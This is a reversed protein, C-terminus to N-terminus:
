KCKQQLFYHKPHFMTIGVVTVFQVHLLWCPIGQWNKVCLQLYLSPDIILLDSKFNCFMYRVPMWCWAMHLCISFGTLKYGTTFLVILLVLDYRHLFPWCWFGCCSFCFVLAFMVCFWTSNFSHSEKVLLGRNGQLWLLACPSHNAM